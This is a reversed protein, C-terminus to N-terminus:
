RGAFQRDLHYQYVMQSVNIASDVPGNSGLLRKNSGADMGVYYLGPISSKASPKYKGTQGISIALNFEGGMGPLAADRSLAAVERPGAQSRSEIAPGVEPFIEALQEEMRETLAKLMAYNRTDPSVNTGFVLVQKGAPAMDPDYNSPVILAITVDKPAGGSKIRLYEKLEWWSDDSWIQYLADPLVKEKLIYRVGNYGLSPLLGKIYAVYGKDFHEEGVLKLVTPQIGADSVVVPARYVADKTIVGTARGGEVVIREVRARTVLKGGLDKFKEAVVEIVHGYGGKPYGMPQAGYNFIGSVMSMPTIDPLCEQMVQTVYCIYRRLPYPIEPRQDFWDTMTIDDLKELQEPTWSAMEVLVQIATDRDKGELGWQDFLLNPDMGKYNEMDIAVRQPPECAQKWTMGTRRYIAVIPKAIVKLQSEIGLTKYVNHFPGSRVAFGGTAWREGHTGKVEIDMTKGGVKANKDMLLVNLGKKALLAACCTGGPGAGVVIVDYETVM